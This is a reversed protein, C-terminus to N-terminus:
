RTLGVSFPRAGLAKRYVVVDDSSVDAPPSGPVVISEVVFTSKGAVVDDDVPYVHEVSAPWANVLQRILAERLLATVDAEVDAVPIAVRMRIRWPRCIIGTVLRVITTRRRKTAGTQSHHGVPQSARDPAQVRTRVDKAASRVCNYRRPSWQLRPSRWTPM